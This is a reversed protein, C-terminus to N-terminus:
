HVRELIRETLIEALRKSMQIIRSCSEAHWVSVNGLINGAVLPGIVHCDPSAEYDANMRFGRRSVNPVCIGRRVLNQLLACSAKTVEQFGACSIVVASPCFVVKAGNGGAERYEFGADGAGRSVCKLFKGRRVDVTGRAILGQAVDLYEPGARRQMKGIEVGDTAVFKEREERDLRGLATIVRRSIEGYLSTISIKEATAMAVDKRVAALIDASTITGAETLATLHKLCFTPPVEHAEIRHPFAADPSLLIIKEILRMARESNSLSYLAELASANSGIILVQKNRSQELRECIRQINADLSPDYMNDIFSDEDTAEDSQFQAAGSYPPSGVALIVKEALISAPEPSGLSLQHLTGVREIDLVESSSFTLEVLGKAEARGVLATMREHQYLGFLYRPLYLGDWDGAKIAEAHTRFWQSALPGGADASHQLLRSYHHTLWEKFDTREAEMPLFETLSSILLSAKGSRHGYPVGAWFEGSKEVVFIRIVTAPPREELLAIFHQLTFAASIGAGVFAIDYSERM